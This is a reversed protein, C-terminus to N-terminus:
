RAAGAESLASARRLDTVIEAFDEPFDDDRELLVGKIDARGCVYSLLSMVQKSVPANHRDIELANEQGDAASGALHIQVVRDLPLADLFGYPDFGFNRANIDVNSLDLLIGCDCHEMIESLMEAETLEGRPDVYYTINELLFKRGLVDQIRQAREAIHRAHERTRVVPTLNGLHIGNERTFCLHDSVWPADVCDAVEAVGRLYDMDLEDTSGVSLELSHPVIPFEEALARLERQTAPAHLFFDTIVELWAIDARHKLIHDHLEARYGLGTGLNPLSGDITRSM